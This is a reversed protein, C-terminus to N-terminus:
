WNDNRNNISKHFQIIKMYPRRWSQIKPWALCAHSSQSSKIIILKTPPAMLVYKWEMCRSPHPNSLMKHCVVGFTSQFLEKTYYIVTFQISCNTTSIVEGSRFIVHRTPDCLTVQWGAAAAVKGGKGWGFSTSSKAVLSPHLASNVQTTTM